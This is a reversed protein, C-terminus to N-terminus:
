HEETGATDPRPAPLHALFTRAFFLPLFWAAATPLGHWQQIAFMVALLAVLGVARQAPRPTVMISISAAILLGAANQLLEVDQGRYLWIFAGLILCQYGVHLAMRGQRRHPRHIWAKGAHNLAAMLGACLEAALLGLLLRETLPAPVTLLGLLAGGGGALMVRVRDLPTAGPGLYRDVLGAMGPRPEPHTTPM